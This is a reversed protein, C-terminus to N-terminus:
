SRSLWAGYAGAITVLAAPEGDIPIERPWVLTSLRDERRKFPAHYTNMDEDTLKRLISRPLVTEVFFNEELVLHEGNESRLARFIADCGSQFDEWRRPQVIAEM